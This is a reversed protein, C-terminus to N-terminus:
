SEKNPSSPSNTSSSSSQITENILGPIDIVLVVRGDGLIACGSVGPVNGVLPSLSKIVIEQKGLLKDVVLGTHLRGWAVTVVAQRGNPPATNLRPHAFFHRMFILPLVQDRWHIVPKQKVTNITTDALYLTEVIGSLPIAYVDDGVNVLMTQQIALTLPLTIRFTTGKGTQSEVLVTGGLQRVNNSVVDLGVGRGSVETVEPATSLRPRFILSIVADDDLQAAEEKSLLGQDLATRRIHAPDIGRGDDSMTILIYGEQHSAAIRVRGVPPKGAAKREAPPEIGHDIANRLLHILPDGIVEIVSRDLETTEGEIVLEIQKGAARAIDRLLRPFKNFLTSIPLMRAQLVEQQLQDVVRSFHSTMEGLAGAVGNHGYKAQLTEEIQLLRTRDTVLEGVLNMLMDLREISIRVMNHKPTQSLPQPVTGQKLLRVQLGTLDTIESLQAKIDEAGTETALMLWLQRNDGSDLVKDSPNQAVIQGSQRAAMVAQLLRASPAFANDAVSVEIELLDLGEEQHQQVRKSQEPTLPHATSFTAPQVGARPESEAPAPGTLAHLRALQADLDQDTTPGGAVEERFVKLTDVVSLLADTLEASFTLTGERIRDFLTELAHTLDAMPYHGVTAAIAKLTHAARFVEALTGDRDEPAQELHLIGTELTQIHENAEHLFIEKEDAELKFDAAPTEQTDKM